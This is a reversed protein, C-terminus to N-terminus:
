TYKDIIEALNLYESHWDNRMAIEQINSAPFYLIKLERSNFKDGINIKVLEDELIKIIEKVSLNSWDSDESKELLRITREM